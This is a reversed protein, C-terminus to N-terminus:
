TRIITILNKTKLKIKTFSIYNLLVRNGSLLIAKLDYHKLVGNKEFAFRIKFWHSCPLYPLEQHWNSQIMKWTNFHPYKFTKHPPLLTWDKSVIFFYFWFYKLLWHFLLQPKWFPNNRIITLWFFFFDIFLKRKLSSRQKRVLKIGKSFDKGKM